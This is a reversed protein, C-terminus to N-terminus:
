QKTADIRKKYELAKESNGLQRYLRFLTNMVEVNEPNIELTKELYPIAKQYNATSQAKTSEYNPDNLKMKSAEEFQSAALKCLTGWRIIEM